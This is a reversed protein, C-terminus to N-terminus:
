VAFGGFVRGLSIAINTHLDGSSALETLTQFVLGPAPLIQAPILERQSAYSWALLLAAPFILGVAVNGVRRSLLRAAGGAPLAVEPAALKYAAQTQSEQIGQQTM